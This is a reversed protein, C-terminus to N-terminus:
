LTWQEAKIFVMKFIIYFMCLIVHFVSNMARSGHFGNQFHYLVYMFNYSIYKFFMLLMSATKKPCDSWSVYNGDIFENMFWPHHRQTMRVMSLQRKPDTKGLTIGRPWEWWSVHVNSMYLCLVMFMFCSTM